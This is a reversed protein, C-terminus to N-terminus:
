CMTPLASAMGLKMKIWGAAQGCYIHAALQVSAPLAQAWLYRVYPAATGKGHPPPAPDGDLVFSGPNLGVAMGLLM